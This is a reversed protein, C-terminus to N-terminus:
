QCPNYFMHETKDLTNTDLCFVSGERATVFIFRTWHTSVKIQFPDLM